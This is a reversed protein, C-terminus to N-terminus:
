GASVKELGTDTVNECNWLDLFALNPCGAVAGIGAASTLVHLKLALARVSHFLHVITNVATIFLLSSDENACQSSM